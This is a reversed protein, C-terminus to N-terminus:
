GARQRPVDLLVELRDFHVLSRDGGEARPQGRDPFPELLVLLADLIVRLIDLLVLLENFLVLTPDSLVDVTEREGRERQNEHKQSGSLRDKNETPPM